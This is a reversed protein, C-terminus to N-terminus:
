SAQVYLYLAARSPLRLLDQIRDLGREVAAPARGVAKAIGIATRNGRRLESLLGLDFPDSLGSLDPAVPLTSPLLRERMARSLWVGGSIAIEMAQFLVEIPDDKMVYGSAGALLAREAFLSEDRGSLVLVPMLPHVAKLGKTLQIGDPGDGLILDALVLDPVVQDVATLADAASPVDAVVEFGPHGGILQTLGRRVVEHDDVLVIRHAM